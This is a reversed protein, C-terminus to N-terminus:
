GCIPGIEFIGSFVGLDVHCDATGIEWSGQEGTSTRVAPDAILLL